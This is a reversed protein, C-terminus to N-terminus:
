FHTIGMLIPFSFTVLLSYFLYNSTQAVLSYSPLSNIRRHTFVLGYYSTTGVTAGVLVGGLIDGPYHVGLYIRSYCIFITFLLLPYTVKKRRYLLSVFTFASFSTAAHSSVFGFQGGRYGDVYHSPRLRECYPKIIGSAIFDSLGIAAALFVTVILIALVPVRHRILGFIFMLAILLWIKPLSFIAWITDM